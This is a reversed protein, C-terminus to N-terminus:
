SEWPDWKGRVVRFEPEVQFEEFADIRAVLLKHTQYRRPNDLFQAVAGEATDQGSIYTAVYGNTGQEEFVVFTPTPLPAMGLAGAILKHSM